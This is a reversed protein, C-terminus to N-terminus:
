KKPKYPSTMYGRDVLFKVLNPYSKYHKRVFTVFNKYDKSVAMSHVSPFSYKVLAQCFELNKLFTAQDLTSAFIRIEITSSNSLNVASYHVFKSAYQPM